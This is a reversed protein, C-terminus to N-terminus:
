PAGEVARLRADMREILLLAQALQAELAQVRATREDLQAQLHATRAELAKAAALNVGDIDGLGITTNGLGLPFAASSSRWPLHTATQLLNAASAFEASPKSYPGDPVPAPM